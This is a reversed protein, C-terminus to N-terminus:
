FFLPLSYVSSHFVEKPKSSSINGVTLCKIGVNSFTIERINKLIGEDSVFQLVSRKTSYRNIKRLVSLLRTKDFPKAYDLGTFFTGFRASGVDFYINAAIQAIRTWGKNRVCFLHDFIRTKFSLLKNREIGV